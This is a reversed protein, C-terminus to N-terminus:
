LSPRVAALNTRVIAHDPDLQLAREWSRVAEAAEHRRYRINGLKFHLDAGLAPAAKAARAYAELAEDYRGARYLYDGANKHIQAISADESAARGAAAAAEAYEGRREHLLAADNHLVASAPHAALGEALASGAGALDGQLALALTRYHFWAGPPPRRGWHPRASELAAAAAAGDGARLHLAGLSTLVRADSGGGRAVAEDLAARAAALDGLREHAHALNHHVAYGPVGAAALATFSAAADAWRGARLQALGAYFAAGSDGPRLELVRRFERLAEDLMGTKYFAVGLNRHEEVRGDSQRPEAPRTRGVRHVLGAIALGYLAKGVEFEVLGSDEALASV